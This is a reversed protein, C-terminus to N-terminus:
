IQVLTRDRFEAADRPWNRNRGKIWKGRFKLSATRGGLLLGKVGYASLKPCFVGAFKPVMEPVKQGIANWQLTSLSIEISQVPIPM